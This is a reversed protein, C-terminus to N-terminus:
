MPAWRPMGPCRPEFRFKDRSYWINYGASYIIYQMSAADYTASGPVMAAGAGSHGQFIGIPTDTTRRARHFDPPPPVQVHM